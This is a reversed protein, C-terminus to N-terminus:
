VMGCMLYPGLQVSLELALLIASVLKYKCWDIDFEPDFRNDISVYPDSEGTQCAGRIEGEVRKLPNSFDSTGGVRIRM